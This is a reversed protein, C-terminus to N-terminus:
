MKKRLANSAEKWVFKELFNMYNMPTYKELGLRHFAAEVDEKQKGELGVTVVERGNFQCVSVDVGCRRVGEEWLRMYRKKRVSLLFLYPDPETSVAARLDKETISPPLGNPVPFKMEQSGRVFWEREIPFSSEVSTWVEFGNDTKLLKKVKFGDKRLKFNVSTRVFSFLYCDEIEEDRFLPLALIKKLDTSEIGDFTRWEWAVDSYQELDVEQRSFLETAVRVGEIRRIVRAANPDL